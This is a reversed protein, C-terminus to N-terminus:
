ILKKEVLKRILRDLEKLIKDSCPGQMSFAKRGGPWTYAVTFLRKNERKALERLSKEYSAVKESM